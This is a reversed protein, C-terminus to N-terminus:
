LCNVLSVQLRRAASSASVGGKTQIFNHFSKAAALRALVSSIRAHVAQKAESEAGDLAILTAGRWTYGDLAGLVAACPATEPVESAPAAPPAGPATKPAAPPAVLMLMATTHGAGLVAGAHPGNGGDVGEGAAGLVAGEAAAGLVAGGATAGLVADGGDLRSDGKIVVDKVYREVGVAQLLQRVDSAASGLPLGALWVCSGLSGLNPLSGLLAQPQQPQEYQQEEQQQELSAPGPLLASYPVACTYVQLRVLKFLEEGQKAPPALRPGALLTISPPLERRLKDADTESSAGADGRLMTLLVVNAAASAGRETRVAEANAATVIPGWARQAAALVAAAVSPRVIECTPGNMKTGYWTDGVFGVLLSLRPKEALQDSPVTLTAVAPLCSTKLHEFLANRSKFECGCV